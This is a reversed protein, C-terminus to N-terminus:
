AVPVAVAVPAAKELRECLRALGPREAAEIEVGFVAKPDAERGLEFPAGGYLENLLARLEPEVAAFTAEDNPALLRDEIRVALRHGSIALGELAPEAELRRACRLARGFADRLREGFDGPAPRKRAYRVGSRGDVLDLGYHGEHAILMVGPGNPMHKYDAVDILLEDGVVKEQIWRHFIPILKELDVDAGDDTYLKVSLRYAEM